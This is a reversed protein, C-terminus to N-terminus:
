AIVPPPSQGPMPVGLSAHLRAVTADQLGLASALRAMYAIEVPTDMEIALLAAAYCEAADVPSRVERVLVDIDSAGRMQELVFLRAAATSDPDHEDIKGMIREIEAADIHGDAKAAQIMSRLVLLAMRQLEDPTNAVPVAYGGSGSSPAASPEGADGPRLASYALSALVALLGGGIAGRGGGVLTGVLAGLGGVAIPNNQALEQRPSAMAQRALALFRQKDAEPDSARGGLSTLLGGLVGGGSGGGGSGGGFQALLGGLPAQQQGDRGFADGFRRGASPASLKQLLSGLLGTANFM